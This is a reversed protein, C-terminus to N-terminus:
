FTGRDIITITLHFGSAYVLMTEMHLGQANTQVFTVPNFADFQGIFNDVEIRTDLEKRFGFQESEHATVEVLYKKM